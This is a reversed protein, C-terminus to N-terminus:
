GGANATPPPTESDLLFQLGVETDQQWAVRARKTEGTQDIKLLVKPPMIIAGEIVVKAGGPSIDKMICNVISRDPLVLRAFRYVTRRDTARRVRSARPPPEPADFQAASATKIAALRASIRDKDKAM